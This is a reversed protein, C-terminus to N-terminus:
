KQQNSNYLEGTKKKKNGDKNYKLKNKAQKKEYNV